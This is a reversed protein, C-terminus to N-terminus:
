SHIPRAHTHFSKLKRLVSTEYNAPAEATGMLWDLVDQDPAEILREYADLEAESLAAIEADAFRGMLLDMERM